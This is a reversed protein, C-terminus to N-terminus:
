SGLANTKQKMKKRLLKIIENEADSGYDAVALDIMRNLDTSNEVIGWLRQWTTFDNEKRELTFGEGHSQWGNFGEPPVVMSRQAFHYFIDHPNSVDRLSAGIKSQIAIEIRLMPGCDAFGKALREQRKDYAKAWVDANSRIGLYVTGTEAGSLDKGQLRSVQSVQLSKRSLYFNGSTAKQYIEELAPPAEISYDVTAHLMSVRHEVDAFCFLYQDFQKAARLAAIVGGSCSYIAVMGRVKLKFTGRKDPLSFLGPVIEICGILDLFPMIRLMINEKLEKPTTINVYDCFPACLCHEMTIPLIM